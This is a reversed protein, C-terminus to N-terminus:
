VDVLGCRAQKLVQRVRGYCDTLGTAGSLPLPSTNSIVLWDPM